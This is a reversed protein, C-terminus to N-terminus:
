VSLPLQTRSQLHDPDPLTECCHVLVCWVGLFEVDVDISSTQKFASSQGWGFAYPSSVSTPPVPLGGVKALV